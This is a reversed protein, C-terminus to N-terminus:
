EKKPQSRIASAINGAEQVALAWASHENSSPNRQIRREWHDQTEEAIKACREREALVASRLAQRLAPVCTCHVKDGDCTEEAARKAGDRWDEVEERLAALEARAEDILKGDVWGMAAPSLIKDLASM